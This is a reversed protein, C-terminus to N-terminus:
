IGTHTTIWLRYAGTNTYVSPYAGSCTTVGWSVIGILRGNQVLPGGSDGKCASIGSGKDYTCVHTLGINQLPWRLQCEGVTLTIVTAQQLTNSGTGGGTTRGWGTLTATGGLLDPLAPLAIPQIQPSYTLPAALKLVAIDNPLGTANGNYNEHTRVEQVPRLTGAPSLTDSGAAIRLQGATRGELCHASTLVWQPGIVSGGCIHSWGTPGQSQLSVQYPHAGPTADSGGTVAAATGAGGVALGAATLVAGLVAAATRRAGGRRQAM